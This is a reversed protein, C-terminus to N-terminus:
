FPFTRLYTVKGTVRGEKLLSSRVPTPQRGSIGIGGEGAHGNSFFINKKFNQKHNNFNTQLLICLDPM